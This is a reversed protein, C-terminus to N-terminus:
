DATGDFAASEAERELDRFAIPALLENPPAQEIADKGARKSSRHLRARTRRIVVM